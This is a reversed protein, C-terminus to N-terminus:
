RNRTRKRTRRPPKEWALCPLRVRCLPHANSGRGAGAEEVLDADPALSRAEALMDEYPQGLRQRALALARRAIDRRVESDASAHSDVLWQARAAAREVAAAPVDPPVLV